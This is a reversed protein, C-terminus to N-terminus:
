AQGRENQHFEYMPMLNSLPAFFGNPGENFLVGHVGHEGYQPLTKSAGEPSMGLLPVTGDEQILKNREAFARAREEDTFVMVFPREDVLGIFPQVNPMEGRAVFHWEDLAYAARWLAVMAEEDDGDRAADVLQDFRDEVSM